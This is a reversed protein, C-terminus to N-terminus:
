NGPGFSIPHGDGPPLVRIVTEFVERVYLTDDPYAARAALLSGELAAEGPIDKSIPEDGQSSAYIRFEREEM